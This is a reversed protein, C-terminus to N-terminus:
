WAGGSIDLWKLVGGITVPAIEVPGAQRKRSISNTTMEGSHEPGLSHLDCFKRNQYWLPIRRHRINKYNGAGGQSLAVALWRRHSINNHNDAGGQSLTM